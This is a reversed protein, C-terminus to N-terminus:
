SAAVLGGYLEAVKDVNVLWRGDLKTGPLKGARLKRVVTEPHMHILPAIEQPTALKPLADSLNPWSAM